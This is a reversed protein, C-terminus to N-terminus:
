NEMKHLIFLVVLGGLAIPLFSGLSSTSAGFGTGYINSTAGQPLVTQSTTCVGQKSCVTSVSGAPQSTQIAIKEAAGFLGPLLNNWNIGFASSAGGSSSDMQLAPDYPNVNPGTMVDSYSGGEDLVLGSLGEKFQTAWTRGMGRSVVVGDGGNRIGWSFVPWVQKRFIRDTEWGAERGHSADFPVVRGDRTRVMCYVHSFETPQAQNAAITVFDCKIGKAMLMSCALMSFDDCDGMPSQMELLVPPTILLEKSEPHRFMLALQSEDEVFQVTGKIFSFVRKIIQDESLGKENAGASRLAQQVQSSSAAANAHSGMLAITDAVSKDNNNPDTRRISLGRAQFPSSWNPM